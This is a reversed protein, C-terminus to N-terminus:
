PRPRTKGSRVDRPTCHFHRRFVRSFYYPDDYGCQAAVEKVSYAGGSLRQRAKAMRRRLLFEFPTTDFQARFLRHFHEPSLGASSAIDALLVTEMVHDDMYRLAPMLRKDPPADPITDMLLGILESLMAQVRFTLGPSPAKFFDSGDRMVPVWRDSVKADFCHVARLSTLRADVLPSAPMFHFWNLMMEPDPAYALSHHPPILYLGGPVITTRQGGLEVWAQGSIPSYVRTLPTLSGPSGWIDPTCHFAGGTAIFISTNM